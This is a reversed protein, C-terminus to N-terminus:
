PKERRLLQALMHLARHQLAKVAGETKGLYDAIEQNSLDEGFKGIVVLRQEETLQELAAALRATTERQEAVRQPDPGQAPHGYEDDLSAPRRGSATQRRYDAVLNAAIRYTWGSFSAPACGPQSKFHPLNRIIRVFVEGALDAATEPDGVRALMYRHLRGAYLCYLAEVAAMDGARCGPLLANIQADTIAPQTVM